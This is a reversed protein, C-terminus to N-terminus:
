FYQEDSDFGAGLVDAPHESGFADEGGTASDGRVGSEDGALHAFDADATGGIKMDVVGFGGEGDASFSEVLAVEEGDIAGCAFDERAFDFGGGGIDDANEDVFIHGRSLAWNVADKGLQHLPGVLASFQFDTGISILGILNSVGDGEACLSDPKTAGLMHEEFPIPDIM